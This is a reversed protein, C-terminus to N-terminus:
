GVIVGIVVGCFLVVFNDFGAGFYAFFVVVLRRMREDFSLRHFLSFSGSIMTLLSSFQFLLPSLILLDFDNFKDVVVVTFVRCNVM